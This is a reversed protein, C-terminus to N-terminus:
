EPKLRYAGKPILIEFRVGKGPEGTERITLGTIALIEQSLFLGLGTHKGFGRQFLYQKDHQSIGIGNDGYVLVAGDGTEHFSFDIRTVHEGHRLSNEMLNYIVKGILADAYVQVQPIDATVEIGEMQPLQVRASQIQTRIDQWEPANIGIDEYYKTFEIQKTITESIKEEKGIFDLAAKDKLTERSLELYSRLGTLQNRIDHRTISSLMNIKKHAQRLAEEAQKRETVDQIISHLLRRGDLIVPASFVEVDRIEGDKKKHRFSFVMGGNTIAHAMNGHTVAPDACNIDTIVLEAFEEKSYGYYRSAASNADVIRGTEPDVIIMVANNIEFLDRYRRESERLATEANRRETIDEFVAVFYEPATSYVSLHLWTGAPKFDLDFSEPQGTRAVRGYIEFLKPFAERIGPFVETVRKGPVTKVGTIRDFARNVMLYIFDVPHGDADYLMRCYAFGELMNEFLTRYNEESRRLTEAARKQDTVDRITGQYGVIVGNADKFPLTTILTDILTGDKRKMTVPYERTSGQEGIIGIHRDREHPDAYLNAVNTRQLDERTGYGFLAVAADNFDLWKGEPSTMFVCDLSTTFFAHYKAENKKLADEDERLRRFILDNPRTLAVVIIARYFFYFSLLKFIHGLMNMFGYVSIYSTFALEGAVLFCQAIVLFRWVEPDFSRHRIVLMVITAALILCILYESAIKFPTLGGGEIFCAPFTHWVLISGLLLGTVAAGLTLLLAADYKRDRTLSRGILLTALFLTVSQFYRAAIWLQTSLDASNGPFIGMGAYALMHFLDISGSFLFSVGVLLLFTDAVMRRTNWIIVFITVSVVICASEIIGHFLLYNQLSICYLGFLIIVAVACPLIYGTFLPRKFTEAIKLFYAHM